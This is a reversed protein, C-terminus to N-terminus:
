NLLRFDKSKELWKLNKTKNFEIFIEWTPEDVCINEFANDFTISLAGLFIKREHILSRKKTYFINLGSGISKKMEKKYGIYEAINAPFERKVLSYYNVKKGKVKDLFRSSYDRNFCDVQLIERPIKFIECIFDDIEGTTSFSSFNVALISKTLLEKGIYNYSNTTIDSLNILNPFDTHKFQSLELSVPTLFYNKHKVYFAKVTETYTAVKLSNESKIRKFDILEKVFAQFLEKKSSDLKNEIYEIIEKNLVLDNETNFIINQLDRSILTDNCFIAEYFELEAIINM